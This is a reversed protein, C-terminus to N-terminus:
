VTESMGCNTMTKFFETFANLFDVKSLGQEIRKKDFLRPHANLYGLM